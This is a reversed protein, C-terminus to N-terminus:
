WAWYNRDGKDLIYALVAEALKHSQHEHEAMQREREANEDSSLPSGSFWVVTGLLILSTKIMM